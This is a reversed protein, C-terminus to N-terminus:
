ADTRGVAWYSGSDAGVQSAGAQLNVSRQQCCTPFPTLNVESLGARRTGVVEGASHGRLTALAAAISHVHGALRSEVQWANRLVDHLTSAIAKAAEEVVSIAGAIALQQPLRQEGRAARQVGIYQHVVVDVQQCRRGFHTGCTAQHLLEAPAIDPLEVRAVRAGSRQPFTPVLGAQDIAFVIKQAAAAVDVQVGDAGAHRVVACGCRTSAHRRSCVTRCLSPCIRTLSSAVTRRATCACSCRARPPIAALPWAAARSATSSCSSSARFPTTAAAAPSQRCCQRCASPRPAAQLPRPRLPRPHPRILRARCPVDGLSACAVRQVPGPMTGAVACCVSPIATRRGPTPHRRGCPAVDPGDGAAIVTATAFTDDATAEAASADRPRSM